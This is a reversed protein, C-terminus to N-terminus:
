RNSRFFNFKENYKYDSLSTNFGDVFFNSWSNVLESQVQSLVEGNEKRLQNLTMFLLIDALQLCDFCESSAFTFRMSLSDRGSQKKIQALMEKKYDKDFVTNVEGKRRDLIVRVTKVKSFITNIKLGTSQMKQGVSFACQKAFYKEYGGVAFRRNEKYMFVHFYVDDTKMFTELFKKILLKKQTDNKKIKNGHLTNWCKIKKRANLLENCFKHEEIESNTILTGVLNYKIGDIEIHTEDGWLTICESNQM